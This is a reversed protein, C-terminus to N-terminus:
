GLLITMEPRPTRNLSATAVQEELRIGSTASDQVCCQTPVSQTCLSTIRLISWSLPTIQGYWPGSACAIALRKTAAHCFHDSSRPARPLAPKTERATTRSRSIRGQAQIIPKWNRCRNEKQQKSKLTYMHRQVKLITNCSYDFRFQQRVMLNKPPTAVRPAAAIGPNCFKEAALLSIGRDSSM